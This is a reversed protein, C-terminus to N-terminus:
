MSICSTPKIAVTSHVQNHGGWSGPSPGESPSTESCQYVERFIISVHPLLLAHQPLLKKAVYVVTSLTARTLQSMDSLVQMLEHEWTSVDKELLENQKLVEGLSKLTAVHSKYCDLCIKDNGALKRFSHRKAKIHHVKCICSSRAHMFLATYYKKHVM